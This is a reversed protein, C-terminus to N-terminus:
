NNIKLRKLAEELDFPLPSSFIMVKGTEPHELSLKEAHLFQRACWLLDLKLLKRSGYVTDSVIPHRLSHLHVRLQHTRGTKPFLRVLSYAVAQQQYYRRQNKNLQPLLHQITEAPMEYTQEVQWRTESERGNALVTFKHRNYPNRAISVKIEGEPKEFYNHTLAVYEKRVQRGAFQAQLNAMAAATKALVLLGSTDKDLRHVIGAREIKRHFEKELYAELTEEKQTEARNVVLGAPKDIVLLFEDEYIVVLQM